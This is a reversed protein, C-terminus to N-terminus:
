KAERAIAGFLRCADHQESYPRDTRFTVACGDLSRAAQVISGLEKLAVEALALNHEDTRRQAASLDTALSDEMRDKYDKVVARLAKTSM